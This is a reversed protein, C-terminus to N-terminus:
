PLMFRVTKGAMQFDGRVFIQETTVATKGNEFDEKDLVYSLSKNLKDFGAEDIGVLRTGFLHRVWRDTEDDQYRKIDTEYDGPSYISAYLARYYEGFLDEQWPIWAEASSVRRITKVGELMKLEKIKEETFIQREQKRLMTQNLIRLDCGGRENLIHKADNGYIVINVTFFVAM